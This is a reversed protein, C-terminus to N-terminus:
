GHRAGRPLPPLAVSMPGGPSKFDVGLRTAIVRWRWAAAATAVAALGVSAAVARLDISLIGHLFPGAGVYAIVAALSGLGVVLRATIRIRPSRLAARFRGDGVTM